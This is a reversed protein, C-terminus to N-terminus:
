SVRGNFVRVPRAFASADEHGSSGVAYGGEGSLALPVSRM